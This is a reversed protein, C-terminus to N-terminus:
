HHSGPWTLTLSSRKDNVDREGTDIDVQVRRLLGCHQFPKLVGTALRHFLGM